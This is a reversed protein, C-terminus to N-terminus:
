GQMTPPVSSTALAGDPFANEVPPPIRLKILSAWLGPTVRLEPTCGNTCVCPGPERVSLPLRLRAVTLPCAFITPPLPDIVHPTVPFALTLRVIVPPPAVVVILQGFIADCPWTAVTDPCALKGFGILENVSVTVTRRNRATTSRYRSPLRICMALRM